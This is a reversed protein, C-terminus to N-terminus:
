EVQMLIQTKLDEVTGNNFVVIDSKRMKDIQPIQANMRIQAYDKTYNNRMILRELRIEDDSYIFIIRDFLDQMNAEFLLPIAVFVKDKSSNQEFFKQIELKVIPHIVSELKDKLNPNSFELKGLKYRSIKNNEFIDYDKFAAIVDKNDSLINHCVKDTDLVAYGETELINQVTSKGSAINGCIAYKIM